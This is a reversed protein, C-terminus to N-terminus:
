YCFIGGLHNHILFNVLVNLSSMVTDLRNFIIFTLIIINDYTNDSYHRIVLDWKETEKKCKHEEINLIEESVIPLEIINKFNGITARFIINM